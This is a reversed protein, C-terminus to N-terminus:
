DNIEKKFWMGELDCDEEHVYECGCMPCFSQTKRLKDLLKKLINMEKKNNLICNGIM